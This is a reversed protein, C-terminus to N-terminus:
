EATAQNKRSWTGIEEGLEYLMEFWYKFVLGLGIILLLSFKVVKLLLGMAMKILNKLYAIPTKALQKAQAVIFRGLNIIGRKVPSLQREFRHYVKKILAVFANWGRKLFYDAANIGIFGAGGTILMRRM